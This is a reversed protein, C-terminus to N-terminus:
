TRSFDLLGLLKEIAHRLPEAGETFVERRLILPPVKLVLGAHEVELNAQSSIGPLRILGDCRDLRSLHYQMWLDPTAWDEGAFPATCSAVANITACGCLILEKEVLYSRYLDAARYGKSVPGAIYILPLSTKPKISM